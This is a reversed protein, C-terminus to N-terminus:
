GEGATHSNIFAQLKNKQAPTLKKFKVSCQRLTKSGAFVEGADPIMKGVVELDAVTEIPLRGLYFDGSTMFLEVYSGAFTGTDGLYRFALGEM